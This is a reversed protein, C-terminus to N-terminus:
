SFSLSEFPDFQLELKTYLTGFRALTSRAFRLHTLLACRPRRHSRRQPHTVPRAIVVPMGGLEGALVEKKQGHAFPLGVRVRKM